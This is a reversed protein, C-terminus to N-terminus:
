VCRVGMCNHFFVFEVGSLQPQTLASIYGLMEAFKDPRGYCKEHSVKSTNSGREVVFSPYGRLGLRNMFERTETLHQDIRVSRLATVFAEEDIELGAALFTLEDEHVVHRGEVYHATQIRYIMELGAAAKLKEAALVAAITPRSWFVAEPDLLLDFLYAEGFTQGTLTAIRGDNERVYRRIEDSPSTPMDWLGGGHLVISWGSERAARVLPEAGYCWGCLPDYVYHLIADDM